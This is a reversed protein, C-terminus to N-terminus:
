SQPIQAFSYGTGGHRLIEKRVVRNSGDDWINISGGDGLDVKEKADSVANVSLATASTANAAAHFLAESHQWPIDRDNRAHILFLRVRDSVRILTSIREKTNWTDEMREAFWRQLAPYSKLPALVPIIGGFSYSLMLGPIDTFGAVLVIGTFEVKLPATAFHEAVAATVGTGLSQGLLVIREPPLEAVELAWKVTSIGDTILAEESPSGTSYGFGRYDITLVHIKDTSASSLSRYTDTRWGQGVTGANGHFSIVLRSEPDKSLLEFAETKTMDEVEGEPRQLLSAEHQAYLGLPLIHWAYLSEGDPTPIKFPTIQNKSFGFHEPKNLDQLWGLNVKHLYLAHRQLTHNTLLLLTLIYSAGAGALTWYAKKFIPAIAM